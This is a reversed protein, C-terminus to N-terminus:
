DCRTCQRADALLAEWSSRLNGGPEIRRDAELAHSLGETAIDAM